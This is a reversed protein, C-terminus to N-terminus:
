MLGSDHLLGFLLQQDRRIQFSGAQATRSWSTPPAAPM